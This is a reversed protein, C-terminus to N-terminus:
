IRVYRLETGTESIGPLLSRFATVEDGGRGVETAKERNGRNSWLQRRRVEGTPPSVRKPSHTVSPKQHGLDVLDQFTAIASLLERERGTLLGEVLFASELV